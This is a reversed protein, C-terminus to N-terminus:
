GRHAVLEPERPQRAPEEFQATVSENLADLIRQAREVEM